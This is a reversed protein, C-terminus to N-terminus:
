NGLGELFHEVEEETKFYGEFGAWEEGPQSAYQWSERKEPLLAHMKDADVGFNELFRYFYIQFLLGQETSSRTPILSIITRRSSGKYKGLFVISSRTTGKGFYNDLGATLKRYLNGVGQEDASEQLQEFTLDPKRKSSRISIARYEVESPEILFVRALLEKESEDKFYQFTVANISVGYSDSLYRIIRESGSDIESAVVLMSHNDNLVDPLEEDFTERFATDLSGRQGLYSNALRTIRENSLDKIWSGYDLIQATVDRPTKHRKLEVVVVDGNRDLCLLDIIGGFDTEVQRGIVLLDDSLMSIDKELWVELRAELDLKSRKIEKLRDRDEVQWIRIEEAM